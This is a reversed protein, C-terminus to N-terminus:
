VQRLEAFFTFPGSVAASFCTYCEKNPKSNWLATLSTGSTSGRTGDEERGREGPHITTKEHLLFCHIEFIPSKILEEPMYRYRVAFSTIVSIATRFYAEM